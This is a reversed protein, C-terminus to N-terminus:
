RLMSDAGYGHQVVGELQQKRQLTGLLRCICIQQGPELNCKTRHQDGGLPVTLVACAAAFLHIKPFGM